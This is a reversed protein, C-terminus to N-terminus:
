RALGDRARATAEISAKLFRAVTRREDDNMDQWAATLGEDLPRFFAKGLERAQEHMHLTVKRRDSGSRDRRLHGARELRDLVSTTASASLHLSAALQTPSMPAGQRAADMVVALANLDTRHLQHAEGFMEVFRDSEVTFQRLLMVLTEDDVPEDTGM